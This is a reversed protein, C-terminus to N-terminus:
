DAMPMPPPTVAPKHWTPAKWQLDAVRQANRPEYLEKTLEARRNSLASRLATQRDREDQARQLAAQFEGYLRQAEDDLPKVAAAADSEMIALEADIRAIEARMPGYKATIDSQHRVEADLMVQALAEGHQEALARLYATTQTSM